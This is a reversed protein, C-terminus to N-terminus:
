RRRVPRRRKAQLPDSPEAVATAFLPSSDGSGTLPASQGLFAQDILFYDDANVIGDYNFDGQAYKPTPPQALFGQDIRFYDDANVRGDLNADGNYTYRVIIDDADLQAFGLQTLGPNKMVVLGTYPTARSTGIGPGTWRPNGARASKVLAAITAEDASDIVLDNDLLDLHTNPGM